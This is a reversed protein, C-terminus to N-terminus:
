NRLQKLQNRIDEVMHKFSADNKGSRYFDMAQVIEGGFDIGGLLSPKGSEKIYDRFLNKYYNKECKELQMKPYVGIIDQFGDPDILYWKEIHPDPCAIIYHPFIDKRIVNDIAKVTDNYATCNCDVVILLLDPKEFGMVNSQIIKQYEKFETLTKGKGHKSGVASRLSLNCELDFESCVRGLISKLFIEHARDECFIDIRIEKNM